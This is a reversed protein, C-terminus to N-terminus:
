KEGLPFHFYLIMGNKKGSVWDIYFFLKKLQCNLWILIYKRASSSNYMLKRMEIDKVM